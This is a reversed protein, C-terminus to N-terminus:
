GFDVGSSSGGEGGWVGRATKPAAGLGTYKQILDEDTIAESGADGAADFKEINEGYKLYQGKRELIQKNVLNTVVAKVKSLISREELGLGGSSMIERQVDNVVESELVGTDDVKNAIMQEVRVTTRDKGEEPTESEVSKETESTPKVAAKKVAKTAASQVEQETPAEDGAVEDEILNLTDAMFDRLIRATYGHKASSTLGPVKQLQKGLEPDEQLKKVVEPMKAQIANQLKNLQTKQDGVAAFKGGPFLIDYLPKTLIEAVEETNKNLAKKLIGFLYTDAQKVEEREKVGKAVAPGIAGYDGGLTLENLIQQQYAEFILNTDNNM